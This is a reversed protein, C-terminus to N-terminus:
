AVRCLEFLETRPSLRDRPPTAIPTRKAPGNKKKTQYSPLKPKTEKPTQNPKKERKKTQPPYTIRYTIRRSGKNTQHTIQRPPFPPTLNRLQTLALPLYDPPPPPNPLQTTPPPNTPTRALSIWRCITPIGAPPFHKTTPHHNPPPPTTQLTWNAFPHM